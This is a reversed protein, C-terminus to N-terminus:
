PSANPAVACEPPNRSRPLSLPPIPPRSDPNVSSGATLRGAIALKGAWGIGTLRSHAKRDHTDGLAASDHRRPRPLAGYRGDHRTAKPVQAEPWATNMEPLAAFPPLEHPSPVAITHRSIKNLQCLPEAEAFPGGSPGPARPTSRSFNSTESFHQGPVPTSRQRHKLLAEAGTATGFRSGSFIRTEFSSEAFRSLAGGAVDPCWNLGDGTAPDPATSSRTKIGRTKTAFTM